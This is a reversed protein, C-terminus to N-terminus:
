AFLGRRQLLSDALSGLFQLGAFGAKAGDEVVHVVQGIDGRFFKFYGEHVSGHQFNKAVPDAFGAMFNQM